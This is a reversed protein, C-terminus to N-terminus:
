QRRLALPVTSTVFASLTLRIRLAEVDIPVLVAVSSGEIYARITDLYDFNTKV